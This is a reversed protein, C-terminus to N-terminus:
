HMIDVKSTDSLGYNGETIIKDDPDLVPEIIQTWNDQQLGPKVPVKIATTDNILKMIWFNRLTEDCLIASAPLVQARTITGKTIKLTVNLGEPLLIKKSPVILVSLNQSNPELTYLPNGFISPIVTSDPMVLSCHTGPKVLEKYIYPIYAQFLLKDSRIFTCLPTGEQIYDGSAHLLNTVFGEAPSRVSFLGIGSLPNGTVVSDLHLARHEKTELSFLKEGSKIIHGPQAEMSIIYGAAPACIDSKDIYLSTAVLSITEILDKHSIRSIKVNASSTNTDEGTKASQKCAFVSFTLFLSLEFLIRFKGTGITSHISPVKFKNKM